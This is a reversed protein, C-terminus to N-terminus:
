FFRRTKHCIYFVNFTVFNLSKSVVKGPVKNTWSPHIRARRPLFHGIRARGYTGSVPSATRAGAPWFCLDAGSPPHRPSRQPQPGQRASEARGAGRARRGCRAPSSIASFSCGCACPTSSMIISIRIARAVPLALGRWPRQREAGARRLPRLGVGAALAKGGGRVTLAAHLAMCGGCLLMAALAAVEYGVFSSTRYYVTWDAGCASCFCGACPRSFRPRVSLLGDPRAEKEHRRERRGQAVLGALARVGAFFRVAAELRPLQGHSLAGDAGAGARRDARDPRTVSADARREFPRPAGHALARAARPLPSM